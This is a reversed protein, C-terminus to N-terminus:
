ELDKFPVNYQVKQEKVRQMMLDSAIDVITVHTSTDLESNRQNATVTRDVVINLPNKLYRMTYDTINFSGDTFLGHRKNTATATPLIGTVERAVETRWVKAEGSSKYYPKKYKNLKLRPIENYAIVKVEAKIFTDTLCKTKDITCEEYITYMHNLPLDFFTENELIGIQSASSALSTGSQILASLGQNRIEVEQFGTQKRNNLEDIFTKVYLHQAETLVDSLEFDEYGPSAFTSSRDLKLELADAMQNANM